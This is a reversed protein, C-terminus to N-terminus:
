ILEVEIFEANSMQNIPDFDEFKTKGKAVQLFYFGSTAHGVVVTTGSANGALQKVKNVAACMRKILEQHPEFGYETDNKYFFETKHQKPKGELEGMRREYLEEIVEIDKIPIGLEGAIIEATQQARIFPSCVINTVNHGKLDQGTIRAQEVGEEALHTDPMGVTGNANATSKGHRVYLIKM